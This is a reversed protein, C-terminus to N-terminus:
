KSEGEEAKNELYDRQTDIMRDIRHFCYVFGVIIVAIGLIEM